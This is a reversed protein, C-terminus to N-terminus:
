ILKNTEELLSENDQYNRLSKSLRLHRKCQEVQTCIFKTLKPFNM